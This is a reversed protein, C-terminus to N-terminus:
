MSEAQAVMFRLLSAMEPVDPPVFLDFSSSSLGIMGVLTGAEDRVLRIREAPVITTNQFLRWVIAGHHMSGAGGEGLPDGRRALALLDQLDDDGAYRAVTWTTETGTSVMAGERDEDIVGGKFPLLGGFGTPLRRVRGSNFSSFTVMGDRVVRQ